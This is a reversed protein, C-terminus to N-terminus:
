PTFFLLASYSSMARMARSCPMERASARASSLYFYAFLFLRCPSKKNAFFPPYCFTLPWPNVHPCLGWVGMFLCFLLACVGCPHTIKLPAYPISLSWMGMMRTCFLGGYGGNSHYSYSLAFLFHTRLSYSSRIHPKQCAPRCGAARPPLPVAHALIRGRVPQSGAGRAAIAGEVNGDNPYLFLNKDTIM